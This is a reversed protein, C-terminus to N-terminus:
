LVPLPRDAAAALRHEEVAELVCGFCVRSGDTCRVSGGLTVSSQCRQCATIDTACPALDLTLNM